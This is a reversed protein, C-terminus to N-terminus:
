TRRRDAARRRELALPLSIAPQGTMTRSRRTRCSRRPACSASRVARRAHQVDGLRRPPEGLTPTLLLDYGSAGVVADVRRAFTQMAFAARRHLRVADVTRGTSPSRGRSRSSTTRPRARPRRMREWVARHQVRGDGVLDPHLAELPEPEDFAAPHADEVTHGAVRAAARHARRRRRLRSPRSTATWRITRSAARHAAERSRRRGRRPVPAPPAPAVFPDGPEPGAAVDLLAPPTACPRADRM